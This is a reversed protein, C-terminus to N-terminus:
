IPLLVTYRLHCIIHFSVGNITGFEVSRISFFVIFVYISFNYHYCIVNTYRIGVLTILDHYSTGTHLSTRYRTHHNPAVCALVFLFDHWPMKPVFVLWHVLGLICPIMIAFFAFPKSDNLLSIHESARETTV